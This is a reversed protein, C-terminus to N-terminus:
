KDQHLEHCQKCNAATKLTALAKKDGGDVAKAAALVASTRKKWDELEGKPPKQAAMAEYGEIISKLQEPTGKGAVVQAFVSKDKGKHIKEMVEEITMKPADAGAAPKEAPKKKDAASAPALAVLGVGALATLSLLGIRRLQIM